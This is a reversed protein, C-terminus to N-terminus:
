RSCFTLQECNQPDAVGLGGVRAALYSRLVSLRDAYQRLCLAREQLARTHKDEPDPRKWDAHKEVLYDHERQVDDAFLALWLRLTDVDAVSLGLSADRQEYLDQRM